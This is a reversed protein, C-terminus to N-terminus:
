VLCQVMLLEREDINVSYRLLFRGFFYKRRGSRDHCQRDHLMHFDTVSSHTFSEM